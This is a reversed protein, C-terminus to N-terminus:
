NKEGYVPVPEAVQAAEYEFKGNEYFEDFEDKAWYPANPKLKFTENKPDYYDWGEAAFRPVPIPTPKDVRNPDTHISVSDIIEGTKKNVFINGGFVPEGQPVPESTFTFGWVDGWDCCDHVFDFGIDIGIEEREIGLQRKLEKYAMKFTM